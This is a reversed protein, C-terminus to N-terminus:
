TLQLVKLLLWFWLLTLAMAGVMVLALVFLIGIVFLGDARRVSRQEAPTAKLSRQLLAVNRNNAKYGIDFLDGVFPLTGLLADIGLNLAMRAVTLRSVGQRAAAGVIYLSVLGSAVDGLGPLLGLLADLGFRIGLGPIEFKSDMLRALQELAQAADPTLGSTPPPGAHITADVPRGPM